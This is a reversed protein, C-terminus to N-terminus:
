HIGWGKFFDYQGFVTLTKTQTTVIDAVKMQLCLVWSRSIEYHKEQFVLTTKLGSLKTVWSAVEKCHRHYFM